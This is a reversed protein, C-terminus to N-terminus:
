LEGAEWPVPEGEWEDTDDGRGDDGLDEGVGFIEGGRQADYQRERRGYLLERAVREEDMDYTLIPQEVNIALVGRLEEPVHVEM